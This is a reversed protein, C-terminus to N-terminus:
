NKKGLELIWKLEAIKKVQPTPIKGAWYFAREM